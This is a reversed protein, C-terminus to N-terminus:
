EPRRLADRFRVRAGFRLVSNAYIRAGVWTIAAISLLTLAVSALVQWLPATGAAMRIPMLIPAFFPILSAVTGLTELSAPPTTGSVAANIEPIVVVYALLWALVMVMTMPVTASGVEEVRSVTSASTAGLMAYLVFGLAFWMLGALVAGVSATPLALIHTPVTLALGAGGIVALQLMGVLGIGIVKGLLLQGSHVTSLLIEVVRSAKEAVVGQAIVSGYIGLFLYLAFAMVFGVIPQQLAEKKIPHLVEVQLTAREAEAAIAAPDLGAKQLEAALVAQKLATDLAGRLSSSLQSKVVVRPATPSGQVLADLQGSRVEEVAAHVDTVDTIRVRFGLTRAAAEVSPVLPQVPATVGVRYTQTTNIKNIITIQVVVYVAILAISLVTGIRFVRGRVRTQFERRAVLYVARTPTLGHGRRPTSM